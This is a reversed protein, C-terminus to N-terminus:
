FAVTGVFILVVILLVVAIVGFLGAHRNLIEAWGTYRRRIITWNDTRYRSHLMSGNFVRWPQTIVSFVNEAKRPNREKWGDVDGGEIDLSSGDKMVVVADDENEFRGPYQILCKQEVDYEIFDPGNPNKTVFRDDYLIDQPHNTDEDITYRGDKFQCGTLITGRNNGGRRLIISIGKDEDSPRDEEAKQRRKRTWRVLIGILLVPTGIFAIWHWISLDTIM